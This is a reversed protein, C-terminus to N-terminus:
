RASTVLYRLIADPASGGDGRGSSPGQAAAGAVVGSSTTYTWSLSNEEPTPNVDLETAVRDGAFVLLRIRTTPVDDPMDITENVGIVLEADRPADYSGEAPWRALTRGESELQFAVQTTDGEGVWDALVLTELTVNLKADRKSAYDRDDPLGDGDDDADALDGEGDGDTDRFERADDPFADQANPVRDGDRDGGEGACGALTATLALLLALRARPSM